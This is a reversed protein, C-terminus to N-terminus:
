EEFIGCAKAVMEYLELEYDPTFMDTVEGRIKQAFNHMMGDYRDYSPFEINYKCDAWRTKTMEDTVYNMYTQMGLNTYRELPKIEITANSGTIVLQRRDFGGIERACTKAFSLGNDYKFLAFGYDKSHVDELHTSTSLCTVDKTYGHFMKVLDVLHCGLFMMMGGPIGNLWERKGPNHECDMHAEVSFVEGVLGSEMMERARQVAPNFRYMYGTHFVINKEKVTEILKKMSPYDTACPKDLHLHVGKDAVMQAYKSLLTDHPEVSIADLDDMALVEEVTKIPTDGIAKKQADNYEKQAVFGTEAYAVVEFDDKLKKLSELTSLGHDHEIGIQAVRLRKKM